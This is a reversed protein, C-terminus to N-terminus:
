CCLSRRASLARLLLDPARTDGISRSLCSLDLSVALSLVIRSRGSPRYGRAWLTALAVTVTLALWAFVASGVQVSLKNSVHHRDTLALLVVLVGVIAATRGWLRLNPHRVGDLMGESFRDDLLSAGAGGPRLAPM